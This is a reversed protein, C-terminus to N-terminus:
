YVLIGWPQLGYDCCTEPGCGRIQAVWSIKFFGGLEDQQPNASKQMIESMGCRLRGYKPPAPSQAMESTGDGVPFM